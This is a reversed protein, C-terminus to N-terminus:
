EALYRLAMASLDFGEREAAELEASAPKLDPGKVSGGLWATEAHQIAAYALQEVESRAWPLGRERAEMYVHLVAGYLTDFHGFDKIAFEILERAYRRDSLM